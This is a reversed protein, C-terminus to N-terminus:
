EKAPEGLDRLIEDATIGSPGFWKDFAAKVEPTPSARLANVAEAWSQYDWPNGDPRYPPRRMVRQWNEDSVGEPAPPPAPQYPKPPGVAEGTAEGTAAIKAQAMESPSRMGEMLKDVNERTLFDWPNKGAKVWEDFAAMFKPVFVSNFVQEGAPDRLPPVGPYLMEQDFSLKSKAYTMLSAKAQNVSADEISRQSQQMVQYLKEVGALTLDGGPAARTLIQNIDSIREPSGVPATVQQYAKWFGPGYSMTADGGSARLAVDGLTRKTEWSLDPDAAIEEASPMDGRLMRSIYGNAAQDSAEKKARATNNAMIEADTDLQRIRELAHAEVEPDLNKSMVIRYADGKLGSILAAELKRREANVGGNDTALKAVADGLVIQDGTMAAAVVSNPLRGYNYAVSALAARAQPTLATWKDDGIQNRATEESLRARRELDREADEQTVVTDKTVPKVTGDALTVTDSGYGARYHNVDWKAQPTFGEFRRLLDMTNSAGGDLGLMAEARAQGAEFYAQQGVDRGEQWHARSRFANALNDYDTGALDRHNDLIRLAKAPDTVAVAQTWVKLAERKASQEAEQWVPDGPQAGLRQATQIRAHVLDATGAMVKNEDFANNAILNMANKASANEVEQYWANYQQDAHSGVDNMAMSHYRRSVTDFKVQQDTTTLTSLLRKREAELQKQVDPWADIAAKGKLGLFGQDPVPQGDEGITTKDPDGHLIKDIFEQYSNTANDAAVEGFFQSTKTLAAGARALSQGVYEKAQAKGAGFAEATAPIRQYDDPPTAAPSVTPYPRYPVEAM